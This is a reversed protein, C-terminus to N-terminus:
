KADDPKQKEMLRRLDERIVEVHYQLYGDLRDTERSILLDTRDTSHRHHLLVDLKESIAYLVDWPVQQAADYTRTRAALLVSGSKAPLEAPRGLQDAIHSSEHDLINSSNLSMKENLLHFHVGIVENHRRINDLRAEIMSIGTFDRYARRLPRLINKILATLM